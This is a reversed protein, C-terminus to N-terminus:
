AARGMVKEMESKLEIVEIPSGKWDNEWCVIIDCKSPDHRHLKFHSAFLEFEIRVRRWKGKTGPQERLALCDPYATGVKEVAIKLDPGLLGFLHVVGSETVPAHVL